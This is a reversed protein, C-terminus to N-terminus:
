IAVNEAAKIREAGVLIGGIWNREWCTSNYLESLGQKDLGLRSLGLFVLGILHLCHRRAFGRGRDRGM